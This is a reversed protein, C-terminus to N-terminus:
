FTIPLFFFINESLIAIFLVSVKMSKLKSFLYTFPFM